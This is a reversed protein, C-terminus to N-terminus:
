QDLPSVKSRGLTKRVLGAPVKSPIKTLGASRPEVRSAWKTSTM